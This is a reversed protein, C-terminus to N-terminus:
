IKKHVIQKKHNDLFALKAKKSTNLKKNQKIKEKNTKGLVM